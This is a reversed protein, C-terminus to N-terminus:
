MWDEVATGVAQDVQSLGRAELHAILGTKIREILSMGEYVLASYLQILSAGAEIKAWAAEPSDVGGVGILPFQREVRVFTQALMHTSLAFLPAGSLGGIESQAEDRLSDPRSTTTNSVIMGDIKRAIAIRVVDDLESLTLDPAIKLLVPRRPLSEAQADRADLVRALLDDLADPQQLNRLGPTNPSSINITFYDAIDAFAEIGAVYDAVRDNADKNAGINIGVIGSRAGHRLLKERAAAHGKNNFGFRNVVGRDEHLRFLRPRANGPQPRPTLTGAETFGFGLQLIADAVRADKDFGAAMGLPNHFDLGFVNTALRGDDLPAPPLPFHELAFVTLNHATEAKIAHLLPLGFSDFFAMM